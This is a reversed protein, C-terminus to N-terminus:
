NTIIRNLTYLKHFYCKVKHFVFCFCTHWMGTHFPLWNGISINRALFISCSLSQHASLCTYTNLFYTIIIIPFSMKMHFCVYTCIWFSTFIIKPELQAVGNILKITPIFTYPDGGDYRVDIKYVYCMSIMNIYVFVNWLILVYIFFVNFFL